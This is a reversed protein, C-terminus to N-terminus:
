SGRDLRERHGIQSNVILRDPHERDGFHAADPAAPGFSAHLIFL